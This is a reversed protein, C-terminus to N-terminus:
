EPSGGKVTPGGMEANSYTGVKLEKQCDECIDKGDYLRWFFDYPGIENLCETCNTIDGQPEVLWGASRENVERGATEANRLDRELKRCKICRRRTATENYKWEHECGDSNSFERNLVEM